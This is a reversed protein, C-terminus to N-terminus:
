GKVHEKIVEYSFGKSLLSKIAKSRDSYISFDYKKKLVDIQKLILSDEDICEKILDVNSLLCSEIVGLSFGKNVLKQKLSM